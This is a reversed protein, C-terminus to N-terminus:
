RLSVPRALIEQMVIARRLEAPNRLDRALLAPSFPLGPPRSPQQAYIADTSSASAAKAARVASERAERLERLKETLERQRELVEEERDRQVPIPPPVVQPREERVFPPVPQEFVPREEQDDHLLPPPAEDSVPPVPRGEREARRRAVEERIRRLEADPDVEIPPPMNEVVDREQRAQRARSIITAIGAAVIAIIQLNDFIWDM